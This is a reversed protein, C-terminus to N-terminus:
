IPTKRAACLPRSNASGFGVCDPCYHFLVEDNLDRHGFHYGAVSFYRSQMPFKRAVSSACTSEIAVSIHSQMHCLIPYRVQEEATHRSCSSSDLETNKGLPPSVFAAPLLRIFVWPAFHHLLLLGLESSDSFALFLRSVQLNGPVSIVSGPPIYSFPEHAYM